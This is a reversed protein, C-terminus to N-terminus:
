RMRWRKRREMFRSLLLLTRGRETAMFRRYPKKLFPTTAAFRSPV